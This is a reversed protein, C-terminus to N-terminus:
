RRPPPPQQYRRAAAARSWPAARGEPPSSSPPAAASWPAARRAAPPSEELAGSNLTTGIATGQVGEAGQDNVVTGTTTGGSLVVELGLHQAERRRDLHLCSYPCRFQRRNAAVAKGGRSVLMAGGGSVTVASVTGGSLVNLTGSSLVVIVRSSTQGTSVAVRPAPRRDGFEQRADSRSAASSPAASCSWRVAAASWPRPRLAAARCRRPAAAASALAGM